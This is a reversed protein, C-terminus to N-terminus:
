LRVTGHAVTRAAHRARWNVRTGKRARMTGHKLSIWGRRAHRQISVRGCASSSVFRITRMRRGHSRHLVVRCGSAPLRGTIGHEIPVQGPGGRGGPVDPTSPNGTSVFTATASRLTGSPLRGLDCTPVTSTPSSRGACAGGWALFAYGNQSSATLTVHSDPLVAKTCTLPCVMAPSLDDAITVSGGPSSSVTVTPQEAADVFDVLVTRDDAASLTCSTALIPTTTGCYIETAVTRSPPNATITVSHASNVAYSGPPCSSACADQGGDDRIISFSGGALSDPTLGVSVTKVPGFVATEDTVHCTQKNTGENCIAPTVDLAMSPSTSNAELWRDFALGDRATLNEGNVIEPEEDTRSKITCDVPCSGNPTFRALTEVWDVTGPGQVHINLTFGFIKPPKPPPCCSGAASATASVGLYAVLAITAACALVLARGAAADRGPLRASPQTASTPAAPTKRHVPM